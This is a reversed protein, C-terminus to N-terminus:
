RSPLGAASALGARDLLAQLDPPLPAALDLAPRGAAPHPARLRWAHLAQRSFAACAAALGADRLGKWRPEGYLPDGVIPLGAAALHVRIQHLRGTILTCRVLSLGARAGRSTAVLEVMTSAARGVTKSARLRGGADRGIRLDIRDRDSRPVGHVLALYHKEVQQRAMARALRAHVDRTRAILMVGSTDRDLRHVLRVRAPQGSPDAASATEDSRGHPRGADPAPQHLYWLLANVLTGDPHRRTPHVVMGAPKNIALLWDDEHLVELPIAEPTHQRRAQEPLELAICQGTLLRQAARRAPQGDVLVLGEVIMQQLRTRSVSSAPLREILMRDLRRRADGRDVVFTRRM